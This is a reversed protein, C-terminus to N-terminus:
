DIDATALIQLMLESFNIASAKAAMPVLSHSTLGPVTNIEILWAQGKDDCMFDVRGWGHAAVCNFADIVLAQYKKEQVQSLGCPCHYITDDNIYKAQYDYFERPTELEILPLAQGNLVACTYEKGSIWQEVLIQEDYEAATHLANQLSVRDNAKNMGISSGEHLPKVMVPFGLQESIKAILSTSIEKSNVWAFDPTPLDCGSWLLKTRLKDMGIASALIGSGTYPIKQAELLAQIIGDEGGRGHLAIFATDFQTNNIQRCINEKGSRFSVDMAFADIGQSLLAELAANGSNLSVEREASDGGMMVAVRGCDKIIKKIDITKKM